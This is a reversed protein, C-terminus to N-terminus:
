KKRFFDEIKRNNEVKKKEVSKRENKTNKNAEESKAINVNKAKSESKYKKKNPNLNRDIDCALHYDMHMGIGELDVDKGCKDCYISEKGESKREEERKKEEQEMKKCYDALNYMYMGKELKFNRLGFTIIFCPFIVHNVSMLLEKISKELCNRMDNENGFMRLEMSKTKNSLEVNDYYNMSLNQPLTTTEDYFHNMRVFLDLIILDVCISLDKMNLAPKRGMTKQSLISKTKLGKLLKEANKVEENDYGRLRDYVYNVDDEDFFLIKLDEKSLKLADSVVNIGKKEFAQGIKGGFLRLKNIKCEGICDPMLRPVVITQQNPKNLGSALKALLKNYSIGASCTYQYSNFIEQRTKQILQSAIAMKVEFEDSENLKQEPDGLLIGILKKDFAQNVFIQNTEETLDIFVEDISAVEVKMFNKKIIAFLKKSEMRFADLSVKEKARDHPKFKDDITSLVIKGNEDIKYTDVHPLRVNPCLSRADEATTFRTIGFKRASYSVAIIGNWQKVGLPVSDSFGLRRAEVQAYYADMDICAIFSFPKNKPPLIM